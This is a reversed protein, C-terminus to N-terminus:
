LTGGGRENGGAVWVDDVKRATENVLAMVAKGKYNLEFTFYLYWCPDGAHEKPRTPPGWIGIFKVVGDDKLMKQIRGDNMAIEAIASLNCSYGCGPTCTAHPYLYPIDSYNRAIIDSYNITLTGSSNDIWEKSIHVAFDEQVPVNASTKDPVNSLPPNYM